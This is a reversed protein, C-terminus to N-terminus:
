APWVAAEQDVFRRSERLATLLVSDAWSCGCSGPDVQGEKGAWDAMHGVGARLLDLLLEYGPQWAQARPFVHRLNRLIEMGSYDLDGFFYVPLAQPSSLFSRVAQAGSLVADERVYVVAGGRELLRKAGGRFGAAYLLM